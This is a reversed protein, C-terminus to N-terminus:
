ENKLNGEKGNSNKQPKDYNFKSMILILCRGWWAYIYFYYYSRYTRISNMISYKKIKTM